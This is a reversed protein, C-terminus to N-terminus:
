ESFFFDYKNKKVKRAADSRVGADLCPAYKTPMSHTPHPPPCTPLFNCTRHLEKFLYIIKISSCKIIKISACKGFQIFIAARCKIISM